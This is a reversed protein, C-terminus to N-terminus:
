KYQLPFIIGGGLMPKQEVVMKPYFIPFNRPSNNDSYSLLNNIESDLLFDFDVQAIDILEESDEALDIYIPTAPSIAECKPAYLREHIGSAVSEPGADLDM